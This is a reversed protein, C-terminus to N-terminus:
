SSASRRWRTRSAPALPVRAPFEPPERAATRRSPERGLRRTSPSRRQIPAPLCPYRCACVIAQIYVRELPILSLNSSAPVIMEFAITPVSYSRARAEVNPRRPQPTREDASEGTKSCRPARRSAAPRARRWLRGVFKPAPLSELAAGATRRWRVKSSCRIGVRSVLANFDLVM